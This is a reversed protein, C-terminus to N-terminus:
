LFDGLGKQQKESLEMTLKKISGDIREEAFEHEYVLFERLKDVDVPKFEIKYDHSVPIKKILYFVESWTFDFFEEWRNNKFLSDFDNGYEKVLKLAGKHGIGKIGGPNFDTGVLMSLAILQEQDIGLTNLTDSLNILEPKIHEYTLKQTKKRKGLLSLNRILKPAGFLLSDADQSAVAYADENKVLLAAQAEGESPSQVTPIGLYGLLKKAEYIM